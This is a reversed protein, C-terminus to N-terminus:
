VMEESEVYHHLEVIHTIDRNFGNMFSAMTAENDEEINARIMVLKMEKFHKDYKKYM